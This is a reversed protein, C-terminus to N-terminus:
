KNTRYEFFYSICLDEINMGKNFGRKVSRTMQIITNLM